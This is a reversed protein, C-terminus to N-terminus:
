KSNQIEGLKRRYLTRFSGAPLKEDLVDFTKVGVLLQKLTQFGYREKLYKVEDSLHSAALSGAHALYTWGDKRRHNDAVKYLLTVLPSAQLWILEAQLEFEPNALLKHLLKAINDFRQLSSTVHEHTPLM